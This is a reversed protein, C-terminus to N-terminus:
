GSAQNTRKKRRSKEAMERLKTLRELASLKIRGSKSREILEKLARVEYEILSGDASENTRSRHEAAEAAQLAVRCAFALANGSKIDIKGERLETVVQFSLDRIDDLSDLKTLEPPKTCYRRRSQGGRSRAARRRKAIVERPDHTFCFNSDTMTQFGCYHGGKCRAICEM